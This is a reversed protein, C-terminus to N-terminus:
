AAGEWALGTQLLPTPVPADPPMEQQSLRILARAHRKPDLEAGVYARGTARCARALSASDGAYCDVVLGGVPAAMQVLARLALQPKESHGTKPALWLNSKSGTQPRPQGKKYALLLESDGRFHYGVGLSGIKGWAGGSIYAWGSDAMLGDCRMWEALLPFTCWVFLYSNPATVRYAAALHAAITTCPLGGYHAVAKGKFHTHREVPGGSYKWPPDAFCADACGDPLSGLMATVDGCRLDIAGSV